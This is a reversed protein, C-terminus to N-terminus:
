DSEQQGPGSDPGTGNRYSLLRGTSASLTQALSTEYFSWFYIKKSPQGM